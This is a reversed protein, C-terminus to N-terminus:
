IMRFFELNLMQLYFIFQYFFDVQHTQLYDFKGKLSKYSLDWLIRRISNSLSAYSTANIQLGCNQLMSRIERM